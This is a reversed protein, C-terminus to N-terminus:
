ISGAFLVELPLLLAELKIVRAGPGCESLKRKTATKEVWAKNRTRSFKKKQLLYSFIIVVVAVVDVVAVVVAVAAANQFFQFHTNSKKIASSM